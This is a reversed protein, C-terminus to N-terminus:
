SLGPGWGGAASRQLDPSNKHPRWMLRPGEEGAPARPHEVLMVGRMRAHGGGPIPLPGEGYSPGGRLETASSSGALMRLPPSQRMPPSEAAALRPLNGRLDSTSRSTRQQSNMTRQGLSRDVPPSRSRAKPGGGQLPDLQQHHLQAPGRHFNPGSRGMRAMDPQMPSPRKMAQAPVGAPADWGHSEEVSFNAVAYAMSGEGGPKIVDIRMDLAHATPPSQSRMKQGGVRSGQSQSRQRSHDRGERELEVYTPANSRYPNPAPSRSELSEARAAGHPEPSDGRWPAERVPFGCNRCYLSTGGSSSHELESTGSGAGAGTRLPSSDGRRRYPNKGKFWAPPEGTNGLRFWELRRQKDMRRLADDYLRDFCTYEPDAMTDALGAEEFLKKILDGLGKKEALEMVIRLQERVQKLMKLLKMQEENLRENEEQLSAIQQDRKKLKALLKDVQAAKARLEELEALQEATMGGVEIVQQPPPAEHAAQPTYGKQGDLLAKMQAQLDAAKKKELELEKQMLALKEQMKRLEEELEERRKREADLQKQLDDLEGDDSPSKKGTKEKV